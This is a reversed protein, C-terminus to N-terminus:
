VYHTAAGSKMEAERSFSSTGSLILTSCMSLCYWDCFAGFADNDFTDVWANTAIRGPFVDELYEICGPRDSCVFFVADKPMAKMKEVFREAIPANEPCPIKQKNDNVCCGIPMVSQDSNDWKGFFYGLKFDPVSGQRIHVGVPNKTTELAKLAISCAELVKPTPHMTEYMVSPRADPIGAVKLGCAYICVAPLGEARIRIKELSMDLSCDNKVNYAITKTGRPVAKAYEIGPVAFLDEPPAGEYGKDDVHVVVLRWGLARCIDLAVRMTRLRNALGWMTRLYLTKQTEMASKKPATRSAVVAAVVIAVVVAIAILARYDM